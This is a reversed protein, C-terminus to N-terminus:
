PLRNFQIGIISNQINKGVIYKTSFWDQFLAPDVEGVDAKIYSGKALYGDFLDQITLQIVKDTDEDRRRVAVVTEDAIVIRVTRPRNIMAGTVTILAEIM